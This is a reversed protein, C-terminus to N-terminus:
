ATTFCLNFPYDLIPAVSLKQLNYPIEAFSWSTADNSQKCYYGYIKERLLKNPSHLTNTYPHFEIIQGSLSPHIHPLTDDHAFEVRLYFSDPTDIVRMSHVYHGQTTGDLSHHGQEHAYSLMRLQTAVLSADTHTQSIIADIYTASYALPLPLTYLLLGLLM